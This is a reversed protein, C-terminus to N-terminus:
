QAPMTSQWATPSSRAGPPRHQDKQKEGSKHHTPAENARHTHRPPGPDGPTTTLEVPAARRQRGLPDRKARVPHRSPGGRERATQLAPEAVAGEHVLTSTRKRVPGFLTLESMGHSCSGERGQLVLATAAPLLRRAGAWAAPTALWARPLGRQMANSTTVRTTGCPAFKINLSNHVM